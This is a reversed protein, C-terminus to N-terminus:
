QVDQPASESRPTPVTGIGQEYEAILEESIHSRKVTDFKLEGNSTDSIVRALPRGRLAREEETLSRYIETVRARTNAGRGGRAPTESGSGDEVKAQVRAPATSRAPAAVPEQQLPIEPVTEEVAVPEPAYGVPEVAPEAVPAPAQEYSNTTVPNGYVHEPGYPEALVPAEYPTPTWEADYRKTLAELDAPVQGSHGYIDQLHVALQDANPFYGHQEGFQRFAVYQQEGTLEPVQPALPQPSPEVAVAAPVPQAAELAQYEPEPEVQEPEPETGQPTGAPLAPIQQAQFLAPVERGTAILVAPVTEALPKGYRALRLPMLLEVPAGKDGGKKWDKGFESELWTRYVHRDQELKIVQEYSRLEWLKMRRWLLFTPGPSLLWRSLRVGDMHKDATVDAIRGVAHRAAEVSVVFLMPIVAHMGVGLPDPWAAAGNFAITAATLLWASQRLMPFPIRMWTLLLDLALLVIIGADIGIPFWYAFDGFGKKVALARVASYSGAFGISAIVVAGITVVGILVKHTRTLEPIKTM